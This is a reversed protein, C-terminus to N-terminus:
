LLKRRAREDLLAKKSIRHGTAAAIRRTYNTKGSFETLPLGRVQDWKAVAKGSVGCIRGTAAYGGIIDIAQRLVTMWFDYAFVGWSTLFWNPVM